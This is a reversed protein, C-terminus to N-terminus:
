AERHLDANETLIESYCFVGRRWLIFPHLFTLGYKNKRVDMSIQKWKGAKGFLPMRLITKRQM